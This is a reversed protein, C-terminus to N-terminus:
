PEYQYFVLVECWGRITLYTSIYTSCPWRKCFRSGEKNRTSTCLFLYSRSLNVLSFTFYCYGILFYIVGYVSFSCQMSYQFVNTISEQMLQKSQDNLAGTNYEALYSWVGSHFTTIKEKKKRELVSTIFDVTCVSAGALRSKCLFAITAQAAETKGRSMTFFTNFLKFRWFGPGFEVM